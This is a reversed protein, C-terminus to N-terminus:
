RITFDTPALPSTTDPISYIVILKPRITPDSNETTAFGWGTNIPMGDEGNILLGYNTSPDSVWEKVMNKVSWSRYGNTTDLAVTDEAEEIDALGLPIDDRTTDPPVPSWDENASAKYGTVESIVADHNIIKHVTNTYANGEYSIQYLYLRADTIVASQPISSLDIKMIITNSVNHPPTNSWSWTYMHDLGDYVIDNPRIYTDELTGPYDTNATSGFESIYIGLPMSYNITLIDAGQNGAIDYATITIVNEGETLFIGNATWNDTGSATGSGGQNNEWVVSSVGVNDSATGQLTVPNQSTSYTDGSTPQTITVSPAITDPTSYTITLTDTGQNGATDYATITIINEGETLPIDSATWNDTGSVTGSGGQNNEWVISSVGVNDSATGQLTVPSQSISYTNESTPQTISVTPVITDPTTITKSVENSYSSENGSTDYATVAFYYTAGDSLGSIQYKPNNSDSLESVKVDIPSLGQIAGIGDYPPGSQDSDYYVKYGALDTLPTSDENTTPADWSLTVEGAFLSAPMILPCLLYVLTSLFYIIKKPANRMKM